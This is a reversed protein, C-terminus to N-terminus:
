EECRGIAAYIGDSLCERVKLVTGDLRLGPVCLNELSMDSITAEITVVSYIHTSKIPGGTGM